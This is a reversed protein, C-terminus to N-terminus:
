VLALASPGPREIQDLRCQRPAKDPRWRLLRTGHRFRGATAHDYQVEVVLEPPLAEWATSRGESWRSPGGPARGSFGREGGRRDRLAELRFALQRRQGADLSSTHGVHHLLGGEDYLGLLLSGVAAGGGAYRFGGLVCDASRLNKVKVMADREGSRYPSDRRKAMVGDLGSGLREFWARAVDFEVTAPTLLLGGASERGVDGDVVAPAPDRGQAGPSVSALFRRHFRELRSRREALPRDLVRTRREDVLLDFVVLIAPHETALKRVRSAAPHLRLQLQEFSLIGAVPVILEGDVVFRRATVARLMAVVDPFYRALPKAAKSQLRVDDGDRFALCRFGDWKPEYQWGGGAPLEEAQGSEMPEFPPEIPLDM